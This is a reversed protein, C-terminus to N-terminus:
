KELSAFQVDNMKCVKQPFHMACRKHRTRKLPFGKPTLCYGTKKLDFSDRATPLGRKKFPARGGAIQPGKSRPRPWGNLIM